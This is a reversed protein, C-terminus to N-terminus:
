NFLPQTHYIVDPKIPGNKDLNEFLEPLPAYSHEFKKTEAPKQETTKTDAPKKEETKVEEKKDKLNPQARTVADQLKELFLVDYGCHSWLSKQGNSTLLHITPYAEVGFEKALTDNQLKIKEALKTNQPFDLFLLVVNKQAYEKFKENAFVNRGMKQCPPCWDSGTFLALIPKNEKQALKMADVYSDLWGEPTKGPTLEIKHEEAYKEAEAEAQGQRIREAHGAARARDREVITRLQDTTFRPLTSTELTVRGQGATNAPTSSPNAETPPIPNQQVPQVPQVPELTLKEKGANVRQQIGRVRAEDQELILRMRDANDAPELQKVEITRTAPVEAPRVEQAAPEDMLQLNASVRRPMWPNNMDIIDAFATCTIALVPLVAAPFLINRNM